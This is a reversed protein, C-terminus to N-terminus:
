VRRIGSADTGSVTAIPASESGTTRVGKLPKEKAYKGRISMLGPMEQEAVSIEKPKGKKVQRIVAAVFEPSTNVSTEPGAPHGANPKLVVTSNPRVLSEVGGLLSFAEVVMKDPDDGAAIAVVSKNKPM